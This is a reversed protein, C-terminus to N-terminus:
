YIFFPIYSICVHDNIEEFISVIKTSNRKIHLLRVLPKITIGQFM